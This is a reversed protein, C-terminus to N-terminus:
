QSKVMWVGANSMERHSPKRRKKELSAFHALSRHRTAAVMPLRECALIGGPVDAREDAGWRSGAGEWRKPTMAGDAPLDHPGGIVVIARDRGPVVHPMERQWDPATEMPEPRRAVTGVTRCCRPAQGSGLVRTAKSAHHRDPGQTVRRRAPHGCDIVVHALATHGAGWPWHAMQEGPVVGEPGERQRVGGAELPYGLRLPPDEEGEVPPLRGNAMRHEPAETIAERPCDEEGATPQCRGLLGQGDQKARSRWGHWHRDNPHNRGAWEGAAPGARLPAGRHGVWATVERRELRGHLGNIVGVAMGLVCPFLPPAPDARDCPAECSPAVRCGCHHPAGPGGPAPRERVSAAWEQGGRPAWEM